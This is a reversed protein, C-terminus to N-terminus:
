MTRNLCSVPIMEGPNYGRAEEASKMPEQGSLATALSTWFSFLAVAPLWSPSQRKSNMVVTIRFSSLSDSPAHTTPAARLAAAITSTCTDVQVTNLVFRTGHGTGARPSVSGTCSRLRLKVRLVYSDIVLLSSYTRQTLRLM